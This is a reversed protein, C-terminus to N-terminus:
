NVLNPIKMQALREREIFSVEREAREKAERAQDAKYRSVTSTSCGLLQAVGRM